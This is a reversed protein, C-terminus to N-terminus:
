GYDNSLFNRRFRRDVPKNKSKGSKESTHKHKDGTKDSSAGRFWNNTLSFVVHLDHAKAAKVIDDLRGLGNAGTNIEITGNKHFVQFWVGDKPIETVDNFARLTPKPVTTTIRSESAISRGHECLGLDLLPSTTCLRTSTMKTSSHLITLDSYERHQPACWSFGIHM